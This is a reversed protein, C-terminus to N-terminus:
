RGMIRRASSACAAGLSGMIREVSREYAPVDRGPGPVPTRSPSEECRAINVLVGAAFMSALLSSGGASIFPLSLGKTPVSGTVVAIHCAAQLGLLCALGLALAFAFPDPARMVVKLGEWLVLVFLLVVAVCGVFGLEEGVISFIFDNDPGPLFGAKQMGAGPGLGWLGGSGIAIVSQILQYGTNQPDAWPHLFATIRRMRYPENLILRQAIPLAAAAALLVFAPRTGMVLLVVTCVTGILVATGFDPEVLILVCATGVVAMPLAFGHVFGRLRAVQRECYAALWICLGVKAFESPQFGMPLGVDLWRRAGNIRTGWFLVALLIGLSGALVPLSHRRWWRYHVHAGLAFASLGAATLALRKATAAAFNGTGAVSAVMVVGLCTLAAFLVTLRVSPRRWQLGPDQVQLAAFAAESRNAEPRKM